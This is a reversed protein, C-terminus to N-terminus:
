GTARLRKGIEDVLYPAVEKPATVLITLRRNYTYVRYMPIPVRASNSNPSIFNVYETFRMTGPVVFEPVIGASSCQAASLHELLSDGFPVEHLERFVLGARREIACALQDVVNRGIMIPDSKSCVTVNATHYLFFNTVDANGVAPSVHKRIDVVSSFRMPIEDVRPKFVQQIVARQAILFLGALLGSLTIKNFRAYDLLRSTEAESLCIQDVCQDYKTQDDFGMAMKQIHNSNDSIVKELNGDKTLIPIGGWHRNLLSSPSAPLSQGSEVVPTVGNVLDAYLKWLFDLVAWLHHGDFFAHNTKVAVFGGTNGRVLAFRLVEKSLEIPREFESKLLERGGDAVNLTPCSNRPSYLEIGDREFRVRASVIPYRIALLALAESLKRVDLSGIYGLAHFVETRNRVHKAEFNDLTRKLM